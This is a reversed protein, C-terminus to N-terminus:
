KIEDLFEELKRIAKGRHSISNKEDKDMEAMTKNFPPYYVIPDYGFGNTGKAEYAIECEVTDEFVIPEKNPACWAIACVYRCHRNYSDKLMELIKKHKVEYPTDHGLFRASHVGPEKNLADIELGSDDAIAEIQFADVVSQAKIIANEKFTTGTEEIELPYPLDKMSLVTYGLPELMQKFEKLKGENTTAIVIQKDEMYEGMLYDEFSKKLFTNLEMQFKKSYDKVRKGNNVLPNIYRKKTDIRIYKENLKIPNKIVRKLKTFINWYENYSSQKIINIVNEENTYLDEENIIKQQISGKLIRALYEMGYRDEDNSYIYSCELTKLAFQEAILEDIFGLEDEGDENKLITLNNYFSKIEEITCLHYHYLSGLMYELRDSSLRPSDNDAIPYMHYDKIADITLNYEKLIELLKIDNRIFEETRSETKEQKLHDKYMFDVVHAFTPTSIDHFLGALSQKIDKTFHYIILAVSISHEYRSYPELDGYFPFSTYEMGCNMGVGNLRKLCDLDLCKQIFTPIENHYANWLPYMNMEVRINLLVSCSHEAIM